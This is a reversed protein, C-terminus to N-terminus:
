VDEDDQLLQSITYYLVPHMFTPAIENLPKLVFARQAIRPHPITLKRTDMQVSEYFLLDGPDPPAHTVVVLAGRQNAARGLPLITLRLDRQYVSTQPMPAPLELMQRIAPVIDDLDLNRRALCILDHSQALWIGASAVGDRAMLWDLAQEVLVRQDAAANTVRMLELLAAMSEHDPQSRMM